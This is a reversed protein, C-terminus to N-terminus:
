WFPVHRDLVLHGGGNGKSPLVDVGTCSWSLLGWYKRTCLFFHDLIVLVVYLCDLLGLLHYGIVSISRYCFVVCGLRGEARRSHASSVVEGGLAMVDASGHPVLPVKEGAHSCLICGSLTVSLHM